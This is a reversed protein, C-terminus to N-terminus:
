IGLGCVCRWVHGFAKAVGEVPWWSCGFKPIAMELWWNLCDVGDILLNDMSRSLDMPILDILRGM